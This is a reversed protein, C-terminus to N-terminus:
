RAPVMQCAIVEPKAAALLAAAEEPTSSPRDEVRLADLRCDVPGDFPFPDVTVTGPSTVRLTLDLREGVPRTPVSRIRAPRTGPRMSPLMEPVDVPEDEPQAVADFDAISVYLAFLDLAQLLEYNHWLHAEFEARTGHQPWLERKLDIWIREEADVTEDQPTTGPQRASLTNGTQMGWRQKYLGTWHMSVLLGAYPNTAQVARVGREYLPMHEEIPIETFNQIRGAAANFLPGADPGVWAEDHRRAAEATDAHPVPRAFTDGGWRRALEGALQGHENQLVALLTHNDRHTIIM